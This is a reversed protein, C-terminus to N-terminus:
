RWKECRKANSVQRFFIHFIKAVVDIKDCTASNPCLVLEFICIKKLAIHFSAPANLNMQNFQFICWLKIKTGKERESGSGNNM